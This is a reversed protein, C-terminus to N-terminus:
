TSILFIRLFKLTLKSNSMIRVELVPYFKASPAPQVNRMGVELFLGVDDGDKETEDKKKKKTSKPLVQVHFTKKEPSFSHVLVRTSDEGDEDGDDTPILAANVTTIM